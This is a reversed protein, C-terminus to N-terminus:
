NGTVAERSKGVRIEDGLIYDGPKYGFAYTGMKFYGGGTNCNWNAGKVELKQQGDIWFRFYGDNNNTLKYNVLLNIWQQKKVVGLNEYVGRTDKDNKLWWFFQGRKVRLMLIPEGACGNQYGAIQSVSLGQTKNSGVFSDNFDNPVWLKWSIWTDQNAPYYDSAGETRGNKMTWKFAYKGGAVPNTVITHNGSGGGDPNRWQSFNGTEADLVDILGNPLAQPKSVQSESSDYPTAEGELISYSSDSCSALIALTSISLLQSLFKINM